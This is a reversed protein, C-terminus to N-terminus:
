GEEVRRSKAEAGDAGEDPVHKRWFDKGLKQLGAWGVVEM